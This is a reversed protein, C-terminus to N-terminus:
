SSQNHHHIDILLFTKIYVHGESSRQEYSGSWSVKTSFNERLKNNKRYHEKHTAELFSVHIESTPHAIHLASLRSNSNTGVETVCAASWSFINKALDPSAASCMRFTKTLQIGYNSTSRLTVCYASQRYTLDARYTHLLALLLLGCLPSISTAVLDM